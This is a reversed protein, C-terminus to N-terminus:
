IREIVHKNLINIKSAFGLYLTANNVCDESKTM